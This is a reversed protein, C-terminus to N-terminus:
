PVREVVSPTIPVNMVLMVSEGVASTPPFEEVAVTVRVPGAGAPPNTAVSVELLAAAVTGAVRVIGAPEVEPVKVTVM